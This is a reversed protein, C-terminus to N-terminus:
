LLKKIKRPITSSNKYCEIIKDLIRKKLKGKNEFHVGEVPYRSKFDSNTISSVNRGYLYTRKTFSFNHNTVIEGEKFVFANQDAHPLDICGSATIDGPLYDQSSPLSILLSNSIDLNKLVLFFKNKSEGDEFSYNYIYLLTGETM